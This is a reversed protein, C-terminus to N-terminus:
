AFSQTEYRYVKLRDSWHSSPLGAKIKLQRLFEAPEPLSEWVSPLFTGRHIDDELILGDRGPRIRAVLDIESDFALPEPISLVSIDIQLDAYEPEGVPPFRPDRFAAAFAHEAVDAVLPQSAELQGICGRLQGHRHLTVFSARLARLPEPYNTPDVTLAHHNVLGHRISDRAVQLLVLQEDRALSGAPQQDQSRDPSPM